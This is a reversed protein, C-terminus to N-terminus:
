YFHPIYVELNIVHAHRVQPLSRFWTELRLATLQLSFSSRQYTYIGVRRFSTGIAEEKILRFAAFTHGDIAHTPRKRPWNIWQLICRVINEFGCIHARVRTDYSVHHNAPWMENEFHVSNECLTLDKMEATTCELLYLSKTGEANITLYNYESGVWM